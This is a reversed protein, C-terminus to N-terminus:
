RTVLTQRLAMCAHKMVKYAKISPVTPHTLEFADLSPEPAPSEFSAFSNTSSRCKPETRQLGIHPTYSPQPSCTGWLYTRQSLHASLPVVVIMGQSMRGNDPSLEGACESPCWCSQAFCWRMHVHGKRAPLTSMYAASPSAADIQCPRHAM